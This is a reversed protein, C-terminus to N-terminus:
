IASIRIKTGKRGGTYRSADGQNVSIELFGTGGVTALLEGPEGYGYSSRIKIPSKRDRIEVVISEGVNIEQLTEKLINTILNGFRDIHIIQGEIVRDRVTSEPLQLRIYEDIEPGVAGVEKGSALYAAVPAFIDRGHFTDSPHELVMEKNSISRVNIIGKRNASPVLVGNDPGVFMCNKSTIVIGRRQTGVGPDIVALHVTDKPFYHVVSALIFAGAVIDHREISHSIDVIRVEPFISLIVGKMSAVYGDSLGFDSLITIVTM